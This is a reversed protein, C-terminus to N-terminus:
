IQRYFQNEVMENVMNKGIRGIEWRYIRIIPGHAVAKVTLHRWRVEWIGLLIVKSHCDGM